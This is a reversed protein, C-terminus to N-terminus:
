YAKVCQIQWVYRVDFFESVDCPKLRPEM